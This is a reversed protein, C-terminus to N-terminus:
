SCFGLLVENLNCDWNMATSIMTINKSVANMGCDCLISMAPPSPSWKCQIALVATLFLITKGHLCTIELRFPSFKTAAGSMFCRAVGHFNSLTVQNSELSLVYATLSRLYRACVARASIFLSLARFGQFVKQALLCGWFDLQVSAFHASLILPRKKVKMERCSLKRIVFDPISWRM